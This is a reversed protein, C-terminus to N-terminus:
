DNKGRPRYAGTIANKWRALNEIVSGTAKTTHLFYQPGLAVGIHSEIGKIKILLIDGFSLESVEVKQFDGMNTYILSEAEKPDKGQSDYYHKLELGMEQKYFVRVLEFCDMESYKIGILNAYTSKKLM